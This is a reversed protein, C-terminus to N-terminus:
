IWWIEGIDSWDWVKCFLDFFCTNGTYRLPEAHNFLLCACKQGLLAWGNLWQKKGLNFPALCGWRQQEPIHHQYSQGGGRSDKAGFTTSSFLGHQKLEVSSKPLKGRIKVHLKWVSLTTPRKIWLWLWHWRAPWPMSSKAPCILQYYIGASVHSVLKMQLSRRCAHSDVFMYHNFEFYPKRCRDFRSSSTSQTFFVCPMSLAPIEYFCCAPAYTYIYIYIYHKCGKTIQVSFELALWVKSQTPMLNCVSWWWSYGNM